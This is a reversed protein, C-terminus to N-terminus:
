EKVRRTAFQSLIKEVFIRVSSDYTLLHETELDALQRLSRWGEFCIENENSAKRWSFEITLIPYESLDAYQITAQVTVLRGFTYTFLTKEVAKTFRCVHEYEDLTLPGRVPGLYM